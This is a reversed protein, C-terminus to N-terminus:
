LNGLRGEMAQGETVWTENPFHSSIVERCNLSFLFVWSHKHHTGKRDPSFVPTASLFPNLIQESMFLFVPSFLWFSLSVVQPSSFAHTSCPLDLLLWTFPPAPTLSRIHLTRYHRNQKSSITLMACARYRSLFVNLLLIVKMLKAMPM